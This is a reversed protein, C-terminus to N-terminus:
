CKWEPYSVVSALFFCAGRIPNSGRDGPVRDSASVVAGRPATVSLSNNNNNDDNFLCSYFFKVLGSAVRLCHTVGLNDGDEFRSGANAVLAVRSVPSYNEISAVTLGNPLKTVKPAQSLLPASSERTEQRAAASYLRVQLTRAARRSIVSAM